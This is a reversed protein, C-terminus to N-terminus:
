LSYGPTLPEPRALGFGQGYDIGIHKIKDLIQQNEVYEAVTKVGMVHGIRNM